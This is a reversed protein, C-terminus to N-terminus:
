PVPLDDSSREGLSSTKRPLEGRKSHARLRIEFYWCGLLPSRLIVPRSEGIQKGGDSCVRRTRQVKRQGKRGDEAKSQGPLLATRGGNSIAMAAAIRENFELEIGQKDMFAILRERNEGVDGEVSSHKPFKAEENAKRKDGIIPAL